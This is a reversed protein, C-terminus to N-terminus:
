LSFKWITFGLTLYRGVFPLPDPYFEFKFTSVETVMPMGVLSTVYDNAPTVVPGFTGCVDLDNFQLSDYLRQGIASILFSVCEQWLMLGRFEQGMM